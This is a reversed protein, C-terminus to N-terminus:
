YLYRTGISYGHDIHRKYSSHLVRRNDIVCLEGTGEPADWRQEVFLSGFLKDLSSSRFIEYKGLRGKDSPELQKEVLAQLHAIANDIFLTSATRPKVQEAVLPSRSYLSYRNEHSDHRDRHFNLHAFNNFHNMDHIETSLVANSFSVVGFREILQKVPQSLIMEEDHLSLYTPKKFTVVLGFHYFGFAYPISADQCISKLNRSFMPQYYNNIYHPYNRIQIDVNFDRESELKNIGDMLALTKAAFDISQKITVLQEAM